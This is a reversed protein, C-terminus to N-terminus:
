NGPAAGTQYPLYQVGFAEDRGSIGCVRKYVPSSNM